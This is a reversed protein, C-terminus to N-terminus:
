RGVEVRRAETLQKAQDDTLEGVGVIQYRSHPDQTQNSSQKNGNQRRQDEQPARDPAPAAGGGGYGIVEVTIISPLDQVAARNHSKAADTAAAEAAGAANSATTLAGINPIAATPIGTVTGTAQINFGN